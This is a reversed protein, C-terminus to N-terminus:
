LTFWGKMPSISPYGVMVRDINTCLELNKRSFIWLEISSVPFVRYPTREPDIDYKQFEKTSVQSMPGLNIKFVWPWIRLLLPHNKERIWFSGVFPNCWSFCCAPTGLNAQYQLMFILASGNQGDNTMRCINKRRDQCFDTTAKTRLPRNGREGKKDDAENSVCFVFVIDGQPTGGEEYTPNKKRWLWRALGVQCDLEAGAFM